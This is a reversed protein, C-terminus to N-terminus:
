YVAVNHQLEKRRGVLNRYGRHYQSDMYEDANGVCEWFVQKTGVDFCANGGKDLM